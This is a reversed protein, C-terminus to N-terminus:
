AEYTKANELDLLKQSLPRFEFLRATPHCISALRQESEISWGPNPLVASRWGFKPLPRTHFFVALPQTKVLIEM